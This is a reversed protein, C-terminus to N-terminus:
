LLDDFGSVHKFGDVAETRQRQSIKCARWVRVARPRHHTAAVASLAHCATPFRPALRPSTEMSSRPMQTGGDPADILVVDADKGPAIYASM